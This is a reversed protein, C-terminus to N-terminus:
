GRTRPLGLASEAIRSRHIESTGGYITTGYARRHGQEVAGLGERGEFLSLPAALKMLEWSNTAYSESAFLKSKPGYLTGEVGEEAAWMSRYMLCESVNYRTRVRALGLRVAPRDLAREGNLDPESAWKVAHNWLSIQGMHYGTGSHESELAKIMVYVGGNVEGLRMSDPIRVDQYYTINTRESMLTEVKHVEVGEAKLPVLFLTIGTHKKASPDTRTLLLVYDAIHAGTTFMKQGNIVWDDGDRVASTKAAFVDSGCGPETFGLSCIVEGERIRPLVERKAEDSGFLKIVGAVMGSTGAMFSSWNVEEFVRSAGFSVYADHGRGGESEPWHSFLLGAAALQKHFAPDHSSTSHHCKAKLEPTLNADFFTRAEEAYAAAGEGLNFDIGVEGAPPLSIRTDSWLRDGAEQLAEEPNGYLLTWTKIRRLYLQSDYENTLGYGGLTRLSRHAATPCVESVWWWAQMVLSAAEAEENGIASVARWLLLEAGDIDCASDALPHAIGQYSGILRGFAERENAYEVAIEMARQSAGVTAAATLLLWEQAAGEFLAQCQAGSGLVEGTSPIRWPTTAARGLNPKALLAEEPKLLQLSDDCWALIADCATMNPVAAVRGSRVPRPMFGIRRAGRGIDALMDESDLAALVRSAVLVELLPVPALYRGYEQAVFLTDLLGSESGGKAEPVRMLPAELAVLSAWLATDMGGASEADRVRSSPCEKRFFAAFSERMLRQDDTPQLQM